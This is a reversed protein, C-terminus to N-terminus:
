AGFTTEDKTLVTKRSETLTQRTIEIDWVGRDSDLSAFQNKHKAETESVSSVDVKSRVFCNV